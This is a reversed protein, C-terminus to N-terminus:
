IRREFSMKHSSSQSQKKSQFHLLTDNMDNGYKPLEDQIVYQEGLGNIIGQAAGRGIADRDLHLIITDIEPHVKLYQALAIPTVAERKAVFVGALSLLHDKHWDRGVLYEMTTYSLLDIASEFVHLTASEKAAPINFSFHKDSGSAEGKYKSSTGRLAAYRPIGKEDYGIFVANHYPMGEYLLNNRYCFDIILPHIGRSSLYQTVKASTNNKEPLLLLKISQDKQKYSVPPKSVARGLITDVARPLPYGKVHILYDLATAGGIQRSFWYWKGNSIKLSDHERTCYTGNSVNVLEGPEYNRLYTLLDMEKAKAIDEPTSYAMGDGDERRSGPKNKQWRPPM